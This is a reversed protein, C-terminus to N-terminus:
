PTPPHTARQRRALREEQRRNYEEDKKDLDVLRKLCWEREQARYAPSNQWRLTFYLFTFAGIMFLLLFGLACLGVIQVENM